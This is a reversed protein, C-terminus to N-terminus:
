ANAGETTAALYERALAKGRDVAPQDFADVGLLDAAIITELMFHMLLAGLTTEDLRALHFRRVPCGREALSAATARQEADLLDGMARGRLYDLAPDDALAADIRPGDGACDLTVLTFMKDRPGDLYLQLQSHQDVPGLARIPTTGAGDKGLSEAWLQRYWLAFAELRECYPMMVTTALGREELLGISLAAGRAPESDGPANAALTADLVAAAGARVATGDLGAVMAPLLGVLSLVSYRGGLDPDHDLVPISWRAALRRLPSDAPETIVVFREAVAAAGLADRAWALAALFQTLTEATGGSKSIALWVTRAADLGGYLAEFGHPDIGDVFHLRPRAGGLPTAALACLARGGLSAGGTGLVVVDDARSRMAEAVPALAAIDDRAAPLALLPLSRSDRWARLADLAPQARGLVREFAAGSLGREGINEALAQSIDHRYNVTAALKASGALLPWRPAIKV